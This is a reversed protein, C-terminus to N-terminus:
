SFYQFPNSGLVSGQIVGNSVPLWESYVDGVKVRQQRGILFCKVWDLLNGTVGSSELRSLLVAHPVSDFAKSYYFFVADVVFGKDVNETVYDYFKLLITDTSKGPLFGHQSGNLLNNQVLHRLIKGNLLRELIRSCCSTISIPRYNKVLTKSGNKYIPTVIAKKWANPIRAQKLTLAFFNSLFCAVISGGKKLINYSLGDNDLSNKCPLNNLIKIVDHVDVEVHSLTARNDGTTPRHSENPSDIVQRDEFMSAFYDNFCNAITEPNTIEVDNDKIINLKTRNALRRNVYSWFVRPDTNAVVSSERQAVYEDLAENALFISKAYLLYNEPSPNNRLARFCRRKTHLSTRIKANSIFNRLTVQRLPAVEDLALHIIDVFSQWSNNVDENSAISTWDHSTLINRFCDWDAKHLNRRLVKKKSGTVRFDVKFTVISHDSSGFEESIELNSVNTGETTFVLDLITGSARRTPESVHQLLFNGQCFDLFTTGQLTSANVPWNIDPFNFDGVVVGYEFNYNLFNTIIDLM